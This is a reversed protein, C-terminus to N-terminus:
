HAVPTLPLGTSGAAGYAGSDPRNSGVFM